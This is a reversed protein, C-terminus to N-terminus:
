RKMPVMKLINFPAHGVESNQNRLKWWNRTDDLVELIDGKRVTLERANKGDRDHLV